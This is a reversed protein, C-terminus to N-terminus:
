HMAYCIASVYCLALVYCLVLVYCLLHSKFTGCCIKLVYYFANVYPMVSVRLMISVQITANYMASFRLMAFVTLMYCLKDSVRLKVRLALVYYSIANVRLM